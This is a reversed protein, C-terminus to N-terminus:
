RAKTPKASSQGKRSMVLASWMGPNLLTVAVIVIVMIIFFTWLQTFPNSVWNTLWDSVGTTWAAPGAAHIITTGHTEVVAPFGLGGTYTTQNTVPNVIKWLDTVQETWLYTFTGYVGYIMRVRFYASPYYIDWATPVNLFYGAVESLTGLNEINMPFYMVKHMTSDPSKVGKTTANNNNWDPSKLEDKYQFNPDADNYLSLFQGVLDPSFKVKSMLKDKLDRLDAATYMAHGDHGERTAWIPSESYLGQYSWGAKQWDQIWGAIPFGGRYDSQPSEQSTVTGNYYSQYVQTDQNDQIWSPKYANDWTNFDLRFWVLIHQWEGERWGSGTGANEQAPDLCFEVGFEVPTLLFREKTYEYTYTIVTRNNQPDDVQSVKVAKKSWYEIIRADNTNLNLPDGTKSIDQLQLSSDVTIKVDPKTSVEDQGGYAYKYRSEYGYGADNPTGFTTQTVTNTRTAMGESNKQQALISVADGYKHLTDTGSYGQWSGSPFYVGYVDCKAGEFGENPISSLSIGKVGIALALIGLLVLAVKNKKFKRVYNNVNSMPNTM